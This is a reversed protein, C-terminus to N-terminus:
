RSSNSDIVRVIAMVMVIVIAMVVEIALDVIEVTVKVIVIM